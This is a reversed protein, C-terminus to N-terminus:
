KKTASVLVKTLFMALFPGILLLSYQAVNLPRFHFLENTFPIAIIIFIVVITALSIGTLLKNSKIQEWERLFLILMAQSIVLSGFAMTRGLDLDASGIRSFYYFFGLSVALISLGKFIVSKWLKPNILPENAPRPPEDMINHPAQEREFGLVSAPDCIFELFIIHIPFFVLPSGFLVPIIALGVIPLHFAMLFGFAQRLNQYIRRGEHVAKAITTFNDDMLVIGAAARAVETGKEGMAIGIDAKKLAPADNVGDGTMAVIEGLSQLAEVISFKHEPKVRCFINHKKVAEKLVEPSMKQVDEGSLIIDNHKLGISEAINHATLKNDGTTMYIKIGAKQCVAVAEKVGARPPDSMAVLGVFEMGELVFEDKNTCIKKALGVVRLGEKALSEYAKINKKKEEESLACFSIINEPAGASYQLCEKDESKWIHNVTKTSSSFPEKNLLEKDAFFDELNIGQEQALKQIEVDIPDVAIKEFSLLSIELFEKFDKSNQLFQEKTFNQGQYYIKKLAMKGETLTGTKDTCIVTASGLTEVMAMERIMAKNKAMRWVGMILFISFVVPIEEPILSMAIALAGLLGEKFGFKIVLVFGVLFASFIAITAIMKTLKFIKKQLPTKQKEISQLLDGLRGYATHSGTAEVLLEADGQVVMTGQFVKHEEESLKELNDPISQKEVASSEGTLLSVDMMLGKTNLLYGDAAVKDGATLYVLDGPVIESVELTLLKKDRYVKCKEVMMQDLAEITEDTRKEQFFEMMGIPIIAALFIAAEMLEGVFFYVGATVLILFIMPETFIDWIRKLWTKNKRKPRENRGYIKLREKVETVSLGKYNEKNPFVASIIENSM